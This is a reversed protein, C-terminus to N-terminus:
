YEGDSNEFHLYMSVGGNKFLVVSYDILGEEVLILTIVRDIPLLIPFTGMGNRLGCKRTRRLKEKMEVKM